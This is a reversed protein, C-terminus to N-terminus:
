FSDDYIFQEMGIDEYFIQESLDLLSDSNNPVSTTEVTVEDKEDLVTEELEDLRKLEIRCCDSPIVGKSTFVQSWDSILTDDVLCANNQMGCSFSDVDVSFEIQSYLIEM